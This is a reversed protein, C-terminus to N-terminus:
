GVPVACRESFGQAKLGLGGNFRSRYNELAVWAALEVIEAESFHQHLGAVLQPSIEVPTRTAGEAYELVLREKEDYLDSNRWRPVDRVKQPDIGANMGEYYGFDTCWSCGIEGASAQVALWRLHPALKKWGYQVATEHLGMSVLVGSHHAAAMAPEVVQGFRRRSYRMAFRPILKKPKEILEVVAM